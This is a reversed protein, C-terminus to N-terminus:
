DEIAAASEIAPLVDKVLLRQKFRIVSGPLDGAVCQLPEPVALVLNRAGARNVKDMKRELYGPTWFGIIELHAVRGDAHTFKFDPIMVTDKLDIVSGEREVTWKSRSNRSFKIFFAEEAQSDFEPEDPYHSRLGTKPSLRFLKEEQAVNVKAALRWDRCKLLGPLLISMAIGYREVNSFLSMPGDIEIRYGTGHRRISHMLRSLKIYKFVTRYSDYVDAILRTARYLMAQALATNYREILDSATISEVARLVRNEPLDSYLATMLTQPEMKLERAIDALVLSSTNHFILDAQRVVPSREAALTFVARRLEEADGEWPAVLETFGDMTKALGRSVKYDTGTGQAEELAEELEGATRGIAERYLSVTQEAMKAYKSGKGPSLFIPYVVDGDVRYRLLDLTLM